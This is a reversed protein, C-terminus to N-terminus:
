KRLERACLFFLSTKHSHTTIVKMGSRAATSTVIPFLEKHSLGTFAPGLPQHNLFFSLNGLWTDLYLGIISGQGIIRYTTYREREGNHHITGQYSLGWSERDSGACVCLIIDTLL